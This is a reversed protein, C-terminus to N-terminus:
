FKNFPQRKLKKCGLMVSLKSYDLVIAQNKGLFYYGMLVTDLVLNNQGSLKGWGVLSARENIVVEPKDNLCIPAATVTIFLFM